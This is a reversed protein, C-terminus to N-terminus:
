PTNNEFDISSMRKLVDGGHSASGLGSGNHFMQHIKIIAEHVVAEHCAGSFRNRPEPM